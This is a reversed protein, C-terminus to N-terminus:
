SAALALRTMKLADDPTIMQMARADHVRAHWDVETPNKVLYKRVAGDYADVCFEPARWPGSLGVRAVAYLGVVPVHYATAIHVPGSDPSVLLRAKALVAFLQELTLKGSLDCVDSHVAAITAAWERDKPASGGTVVLKGNWGTEALRQAFEVQYHLPWDRESKSSTPNLVLYPAAGVSEALWDEADPGIPPAYEVAAEPLGFHRAFALMGDALHEDARAIRQNCVLWQGDKARRQDFGLKVKAKIFPYLVNVRFKAQTALLVDFERGAFDAAIRRYEAFNGPGDVFYFEVRDALHKVVPSFKREIMWTLRVDRELLAMVLSLTLVVDGLASLRVLLVRSQSSLEPTNIPM